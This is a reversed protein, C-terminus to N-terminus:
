MCVFACVIASEHVCVEAHEGVGEGERSSGRVAKVGKGESRACLIMKTSSFTMEDVDVFTLAIAPIAVVPTAVVLTVIVSPAETPGRGLGWTRTQAGRLLARTCGRGGGRFSRRGDVSIHQGPRPRPGIPRTETQTWDWLDLM